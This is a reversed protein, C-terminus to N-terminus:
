CKTVCQDNLIEVKVPSVRAVQHDRFLCKKLGSKVENISEITSTRTTCFFNHCLAYSPQCDSPYQSIPSLLCADQETTSQVTETFIAAFSSKIYNLTIQIFCVFVFSM